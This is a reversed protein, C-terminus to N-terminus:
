NWEVIKSRLHEEVQTNAFATFPLRTYNRSLSIQQSPKNKRIWLQQTKVDLKVDTLGQVFKMSLLRLLARDGKYVRNPNLTKEDDIFSTEFSTASIIDSNIKMEIINRMTNLYHLFEHAIVAHITGRLGYIILPASLQIIIKIQDDQTRYPMTRAYLISHQGFEVDSTGILISPEIVYDPYEVSTISEIRSIAENVINIRKLSQQYTKTDLVGEKYSKYILALPNISRM